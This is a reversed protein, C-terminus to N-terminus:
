PAREGISAPALQLGTIPPRRWLRALVLGAVFGGIHAQWSIMTEPTLMLLVQLLVWVGMFVVAPLRLPIFLWVVRLRIRPFIVLYAGMVGAIGGSAGVLPVSPDGPVVTHLLGGALAAATFLALYRLRGLHDEVNDGFLWLFYLNAALHAIGGHLLAHTVLTQVHELSWVQEPVLWLGHYPTWADPDLTGEMHAIAAWIQAVFALVLVGLLSWNVVPRRHTPNWVEGPLGTLLRFVYGRVTGFNSEEGDTFRSRDQGAVLAIEGLLRCEDRDLWLANCHECVDVEVARKRDHVVFAHLPYGDRPCRMATRGQWQSAGTNIWSTPEAPVGMTAAAEGSDLFTGGCGPCHDVVVDGHAVTRLRSHCRPCPLHMPSM